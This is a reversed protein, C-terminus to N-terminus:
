LNSAVFEEIKDPDIRKGIIKGESNVFVNQPIYRIGYLAAAASDWGKLDSVQPWTLGDAGIAEVWKGHDNDLSVGIIQFGKGKYAKYAKVITPNARRCPGCWSAWFDIMTVKAGKYIDSFAVPKGDPDNLTFDIAPSGVETDELVKVQKQIRALTKNGAFAPDDVYEAILTKISDASLDYIQGPIQELAYLSHPNEALIKVDLSDNWRAMVENARVLDPYTEKKREPTTAPDTYEKMLVDFGIQRAMAIEAANLEKFITNTKGGDLYLGPDVSEMLTSDSCTVSYSDNELYVLFRGDIGPIEIKYSEPSVVKGTFTFKGNVVDVTDSIPDNKDNNSLIAKGSVLAPHSGTVKGKIVYGDQKGACSALVAAAALIFAFKKM